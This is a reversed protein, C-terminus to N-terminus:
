QGTSTFKQGTKKDYISMRVFLFHHVQVRIISIIHAMKSFSCGKRELLIGVNKMNLSKSNSFLVKDIHKINTM